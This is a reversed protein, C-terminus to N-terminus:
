GGGEPEEGTPAHRAVRHSEVVDVDPGNGLGGGEAQGGEAQQTQAQDTPPPPLLRLMLELGLGWRDRDTPGWRRRNRDTPNTTPQGQCVRQTGDSARKGVAGRVGTKEAERGAECARCPVM